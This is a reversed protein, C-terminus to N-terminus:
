SLETVNITGAGIVTIIGTYGFPVEYYGNTIIRSTFSTASAASGLKILITGTVSFITAGKRLANIDLATTVTALTTQTTTVANSSTGVTKSLLGKLLAIVSANSAPNTVAADAPTGLDTDINNLSTNATTQNAVTTAGTPLPLSNASIPQTAQFFTGTVAQSAPFNTVQTKQTGDTQTSAKAVTADKALLSVDTSSPNVINVDLAQKNGSTTVTTQKYSGSGDTRGEIAVHATSGMNTSSMPTGISRLTEQLKDAFVVEFYFSTQAVSGNTYTIKISDAKGMLGGQFAPVSNPEYPTVNGTFNVKVGNLFYEIIYSGAQDSQLSFHVALNGNYPIIGSNWSANAALPTTTSAAMGAVPIPVQQGSPTTGKNSVFTM